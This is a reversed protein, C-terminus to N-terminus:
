LTLKINIFDRKETLFNGLSILLLDLLGANVDYVLGPVEAM